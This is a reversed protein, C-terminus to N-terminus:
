GEQGSGDPDKKPEIKGYGNRGNEKVKYLAEDAAKMSAKFDDKCIAYGVSITFTITQGESSTFSFPECLKQIREVAEQEDVNKMVILFEDGGLRFLLDTDHHWFIVEMRNALTCLAEDGVAHGYGDNISKFKDIDLIAVIAPDDKVTETMMYRNYLGTLQDHRALYQLSDLSKRVADVETILYFSMLHPSTLLEEDQIEHNLPYSYEPHDKRLRKTITGISDTSMFLSQISHTWKKGYSLVSVYNFSDFLCQKEYKRRAASASFFLGFEKRYDETIINETLYEAVSSWRVGPEINNLMMAKGVFVPSVSDNDFDILLLMSHDALAMQNEYGLVQSLQWFIM